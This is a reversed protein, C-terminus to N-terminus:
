IEHSGGYWYTSREEPQRLIYGINLALLVMIVGTIATNGLYLSLVGLLLLGIFILSLNARREKTM